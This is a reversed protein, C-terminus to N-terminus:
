GQPSAPDSLRRWEEKREDICCGILTVCKDVGSDGKRMGVLVVKTLTKM